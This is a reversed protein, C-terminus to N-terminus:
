PIENEVLESWDIREEALKRLLMEVVPYISLAMFLYSSPLKELKWKRVIRIVDENTLEEVGLSSAIKRVLKELM